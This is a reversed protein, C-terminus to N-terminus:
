QKWRYEIEDPAIYDQYPKSERIAHEFYDPDNLRALGGSYKDNLRKNEAIKSKLLQQVSFQYYMERASSNLLLYLGALALFAAFIYNVIQKTTLKFKKLKM